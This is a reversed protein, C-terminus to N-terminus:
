WDPVIQFYVIRLLNNQIFQCVMEKDTLKIQGTHKLFLVTHTDISINQVDANYLGFLHQAKRIFIPLYQSGIHGQPVM